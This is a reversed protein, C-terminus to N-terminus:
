WTFVKKRFANMKPIKGISNRLRAKHEAALRTNSTSYQRSIEVEPPLLALLLVLLLPPTTYLSFARSLSFPGRAAADFM